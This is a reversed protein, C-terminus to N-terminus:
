PWIAQFNLRLHIVIGFIPSSFKEEDLENTTNYVEMLQKHFSSGESMDFPAMPAPKFKELDQIFFPRITKWEPEIAAIYAPPTPYWYGEGKKPTYRTLTSLQLYGDKKAVEM